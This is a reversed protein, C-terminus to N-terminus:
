LRLFPLDFLATDHEFLRQRLVIACLAEKLRQYEFRSGSKYIGRKRSKEQATEHLPEGQDLCHRLTLFLTPIFCIEIRRQSANRRLNRSRPTEKRPDM